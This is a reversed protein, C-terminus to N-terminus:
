DNPDARREVGSRRDLKARDIRERVRRAQRIQEFTEERRREGRYTQRLYWITISASILAICSALALVNRGAVYLGGVAILIYLAPLLEYVVKPLYTIKKM